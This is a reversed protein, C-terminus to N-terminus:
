AAIEEPRSGWADRWEGTDRFHRLRRLHEAETVITSERPKGPPSADDGYGGDVLRQYSRAQCVFTLDAKFARGDNGARLGRLFASRKVAEMAEGWLELGGTDLRQRIARRRTPDLVKARPLGCLRATQNWLDFAAAVEDPKEPKATVSKPPGLPPTIEPTQTKSPPTPSVKTEPPVTVDGADCETVTVNPSADTVTQSAQHRRERWRRTREAGASRPPPPAMVQIAEAEFAEAMELATEWDVGKDRLRRIFGVTSM